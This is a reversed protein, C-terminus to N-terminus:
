SHPASCLAGHPVSETSTLTEPTSFAMTRKRQRIVNVAENHGIRYLWSKFQYDPRYQHLASFAKRITEQTADEADQSHRLMHWIFHYLGQEYREFLLAASEQDGSECYNRILTSDDVSEMTTLLVLSGSAPM